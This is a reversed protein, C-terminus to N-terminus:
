TEFEPSPVNRRRFARFEPWAGALAAGMIIIVWDSHPLLRLGAWEAFAFALGGWVVAVPIALSVRYPFRPIRVVISTCCGAAAGFLANFPFLFWGFFASTFALERLLELISPMPGFAILTSVSRYTLFPHPLVSFLLAGIAGCLIGTMAGKFSPRKLVTGTTDQKEYRAVNM